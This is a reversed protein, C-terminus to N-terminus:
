PFVSRSPSEKKNAPTRSGSQDKSGSKEKAPQQDPAKAPAKPPTSDPITPRPMTPMAIKEPRIEMRARVQQLAGVVVWEDAKLGSEIVRLGDDQLSGTTIRRQQARNEADVVYVFKLGQDSGIARDIVLLSRHPEGLPMLVRVFMGPSLLRAGKEPKPNPFIGRVSISGTTSNVQNNVFNITGEHPFGDEGQVGMSVHVIGDEPVKIRGENVARRVRLLTPEDMDFNVYIPDLSVITALLTQDQNVLNGPASTLFARSIQGTIPAKVKTFSLNLKYVETSAQFAKVRAEAEAVAAKDQDLQQASVAGPTKSIEQDRALTTKAL